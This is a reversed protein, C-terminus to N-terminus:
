ISSAPIKPVPLQERGGDLTFNFENKGPKVEIKEKTNDPRYKLPFVSFPTMDKVTKAVKVPNDETKDFGVRYTGVPVGAYAFSTKMQVTGKDDTRGGSRWKVTPDEPILTVAVGEIAEGGFTVTIKCPHLEPLGEPPPPLRRCGLVTLGVLLLLSLKRVM